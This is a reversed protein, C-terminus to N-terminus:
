AFKFFLMKKETLGIMFKNISTTVANIDLISDYVPVSSVKFGNNISWLNITKSSEEYAAVYKDENKIFCSRSLMKQMGYSEFSYLLNTFVEDGVMQLNALTHRSNSNRQSPRSSVFIQRCLPDFKMSYFPGDIAIPHRIYGSPTNEFFWLSNLKCSIVGDRPLGQSENPIHAVSVVSSMDGPVELVCLPQGLNRFDYKIVSGMQTGVYFNYNNSSDWCCSWLPMTQSLSCINSNSVSDTIKFSKDISVTLIKVNQFSVDRIQGSHLPLFALPKYQSISIKKLGYGAFLNNPSKVTSMIIDLCPNTDFVRCGGFQCLDLSKEMYLKVTNHPTLKMSTATSTSVLMSNNKFTALQTKLSNIEQNFAHERCIYKSLELQIKNREEIVNDLKEKLEDLESTDVAILKKAYIYRIDTKLVKKKCTPCSKKSQSQLWRTICSHGFLHGCKLSCIRHTGSNTWNDLCIPCIQGDEEYESESRSRKKPNSETEETKYNEDHEDPVPSTDRSISSVRSAAASNDSTESAVSIVDDIENPNEGVIIEAALEISHIDNLVVIPQAVIAQHIEVSPSINPNNGEFVNQVTSENDNEM